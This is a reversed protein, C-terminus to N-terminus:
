NLLISALCSSEQGGAVVGLEILQTLLLAVNVFVKIASRM